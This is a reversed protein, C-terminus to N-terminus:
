TPSTWRGLSGCVRAARDLGAEIAAGDGDSVDYRLQIASREPIGFVVGSRELAREAVRSAERVAAALGEADGADHRESAEFLLGCASGKESSEAPPAADERDQPWTRDRVVGVFAAIAIAAILVVVVASRSLPKGPDAPSREGASVRHNGADRM